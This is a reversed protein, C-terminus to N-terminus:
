WEHFRTQCSNSGPSVSLHRKPAFTAGYLLINPYSLRLTELIKTPFQLLPLSNSSLAVRLPTSAATKARGRGSCRNAKGRAMRRGPGGYSECHQITTTPICGKTNERRVVDLFLWGQRINGKISSWRPSPNVATQKLSYSGALGMAGLNRLTRSVDQIYVSFFGCLCPRALYLVSVDRLAPKM